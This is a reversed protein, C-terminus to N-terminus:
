KASTIIFPDSFKPDTVMTYDTLTKLFATIAKKDSDTINLKLPQNNADKLNPSLTPHNKIGSSYHELVEDLTNFRGDHMYPATLAINRLSPIRFMGDLNQGNAQFPIAGVGPDTTTEDLGINFFGVGMYGGPNVNHCNGCPYKTNFLNQGQTELATLTGAGNAVQDFRSNRTTISVLFEAVAQSIRNVSIETTGFAKLFLDNYYPLEALKAPITEPNSIGMEIHNSVPRMILNQLNNERADWFFSGGFALIDGEMFIGGTNIDQIPLTNRVTLRNEYGRSKAVNDAFGSAQHHCTGCSISNNVSLHTDYFLVRGLTAKQNRIPDDFPFYQFPEAPLNLSVRKDNILEDAKKCSFILTTILVVLLLPKIGSPLTSKM